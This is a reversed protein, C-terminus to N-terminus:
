VNWLQTRLLWYWSAFQAADESLMKVNNQMKTVKDGLFVIFFFFCALSFM